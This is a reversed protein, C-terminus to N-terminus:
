ITVSWFPWFLLETSKLPQELRWFHEWLQGGLAQDLGESALICHHLM